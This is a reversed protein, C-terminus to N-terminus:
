ARGKLQHVEDWIRRVRGIGASYKRSIGSKSGGKEILERIEDDTLKKKTIKDKRPRGYRKEKSIRAM